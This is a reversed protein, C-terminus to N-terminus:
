DESGDLWLQLGTKGTEVDREILSYLLSNTIGQIFSQMITVIQFRQRILLNLEEMQNESGLIATIQRYLNHLYVIDLEEQIENKQEEMFKPIAYDLFDDMLAIYLVNMKTQHEQYPLPHETIYTKVKEYLPHKANVSEGLSIRSCLGALEGLYRNGEDAADSAPTHGIANLLDLLYKDLLYGQKGLKNKMRKVLQFFEELTNKLYAKEAKGVIGEDDYFINMNDRDKKQAKLRMYDPFDGFRKRTSVSAFFAHM